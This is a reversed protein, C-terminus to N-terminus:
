FTIFRLGISTAIIGIHSTSGDGDILDNFRKAEKETFKISYRDTNGDSYSDPSRSDFYGALQWVKSDHDKEILYTQTTNVTYM